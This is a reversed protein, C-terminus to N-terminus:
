GGLSRGFHSLCTVEDAVHLAEGKVEARKSERGKLERAEGGVL